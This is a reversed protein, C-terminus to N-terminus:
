PAMFLQRPGREAGARRGPRRVGAESDHCWRRWQRWWLLCRAGDVGRQRWRFGLWGAVAKLGYSNVPLLWQRRLRVHVDILRAKLLAREAEPAGQREALRLLGISGVLTFLAGGVIMVSALLEILYDVMAASM